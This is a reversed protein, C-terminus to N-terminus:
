APVSQRHEAFKALFDRMYPGFSRWCELHFKQEGTRILLIPANEFLTRTAKGVPFHDLRLDLACGVNIANVADPGSIEFGVNRHSIDTVSCVLEGAVKDFGQTLKAARSAGAVIIWEDPGLKAITQTKLSKTAGIKGPLKVDSLTGFTTVDEPKVRLSYRVREDILAVALADTVLTEPISIDQDFLM